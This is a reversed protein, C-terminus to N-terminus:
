IWKLVLPKVYVYIQNSTPARRVYQTKLLFVNFIRGFLHKLVCISYATNPLNDLFTM